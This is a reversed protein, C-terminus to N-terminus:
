TTDRFSVWCRCPRQSSHSRPEERVMGGNRDNTLDATWWHRRRSGPARRATDCALRETSTLRDFRTPRVREAHDRDSPPLHAAHPPRNRAAARLHRRYARLDRAAARLSFTM